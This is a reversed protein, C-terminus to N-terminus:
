IIKRRLEVVVGLITVTEKGAYPYFKAEYELNLPQLLIGDRQKVVKKLTADYGNVYVACDQGSECDPQVQVIVTDGDIYKPWMSTGAVKIGIFEKGGAIMDVPLDEFDVVDDLAEIPTGAPIKGYVNIRVGRGDAVLRNVNYKAEDEAVCFAENGLLYDITVNFFKAVEYATKIDAISNKEWYSVTTQDYGLIEGLREQTLKKAKRLEKIKNM